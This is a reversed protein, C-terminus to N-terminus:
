NGEKWQLLVVVNAVAAVKVQLHTALFPNAVEDVRTRVVSPEMGARNKSHKQVVIFDQQLYAQVSVASECM